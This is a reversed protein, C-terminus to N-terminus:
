QLKGFRYVIGANVGKGNQLTGGFTTGLYTPTVRLAVNPFVNYDLNLGAAFAPRFESPWTGIQASTLGKSAGDFKGLGLGGEAFGSIAYKERTRFRYTPGTLFAYESIQPNPLNYITNGIPAKGYAGRVEAQVGVRPNLAYMTSAWFTVENNQRLYQGSRFRLFGGGGAAEFRHGYTEQITRAIRAKRNANSERRTRRVSQANASTAVSSFLLAAAIATLTIRKMSFFLPSNSLNM